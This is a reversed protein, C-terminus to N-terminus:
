VVEKRSLVVRPTLSISTYAHNRPIDFQTELLAIYSYPPILEFWNSAMSSAILPIKRSAFLRLRRYLLSGAKGENLLVPLTVELPKSYHKMIGIQKKDFLEINRPTIIISDIRTDHASWRAVEISLPEVTIFYKKHNIRWLQKKLDETSESSIVIKKAIRVNENSVLQESIEECVLIRYGLKFATNLTKLDCKKVYTDVFVKIPM